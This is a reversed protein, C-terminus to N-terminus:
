LTIIKLYLNTLLLYGHRDVEKCSRKLSSILTAVSKLVFSMESVRCCMTM